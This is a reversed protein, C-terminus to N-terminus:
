GGTLRNATFIMRTDGITIEDMHKVRQRVNPMLDKGNLRTGNRSELDVVEFVTGRIHISCHFGSVAPDDIFLECSEDRGLTIKEKTIRVFGAPDTGEVIAVGLIYPYGFSETVVQVKMTKPRETM